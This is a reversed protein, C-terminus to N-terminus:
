SKKELWATKELHGFLWPLFCLIKLFSLLKLIFYFANKMMKLPGEIFYIFCNEKPLHSDSMLYKNKYHDYYQIDTAPSDTGCDFDYTGFTRLLDWDNLEKARIKVNLNANFTESKSM